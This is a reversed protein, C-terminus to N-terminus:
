PLVYNTGEKRHVVSSIVLVEVGSIVNGVIKSELITMEFSCESKGILVSNDRGYYM